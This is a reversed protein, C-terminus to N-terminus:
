HRSTPTSVVVVLPSVEAGSITRSSGQVERWPGSSAPDGLYRGGCQARADVDAGVQRVGQPSFAWASGAAAPSFPISHGCASISRGGVRRRAHPTAITASRIPRPGSHYRGKGDIPEGMANVVRGLLQAPGCAAAGRSWPAVAAACGRWRPSPM